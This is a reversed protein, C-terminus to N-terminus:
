SHGVFNSGGRRRSAAAPATLSRLLVNAGGLSHEEHEHREDAHAGCCEQLGSTTRITRTRRTESVLWRSAIGTSLADRSIPM